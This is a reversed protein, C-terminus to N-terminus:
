SPEVSLIHVIEPRACACTTTASSPPLVAKNVPKHARRPSNDPNRSSSPLFVQSPLLEAARALSDLTRIHSREQVTSIFKYLLPHQYVCSFNTSLHM